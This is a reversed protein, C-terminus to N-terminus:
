TYPRSFLRDLNHTGSVIHENFSKSVDAYFSRTSETRFSDNTQKIQTPLIFPRQVSLIHDKLILYIIGTSGIIM